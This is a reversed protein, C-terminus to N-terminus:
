SNKATTAFAAAKAAWAHVIPAPHRPLGTIALAEEAQDMTTVLMSRPSELGIKDM